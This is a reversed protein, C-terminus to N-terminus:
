ELLPQQEGGMQTNKKENAHRFHFGKPKKM